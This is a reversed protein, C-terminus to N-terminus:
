IENNAQWEEYRRGDPMIAQELSKASRLQELTVKAGDLAVGELNALDLKAGKLDVNSLDSWRLDADSLDADSLNADELNAGKITAGILIASALYAGNLNTAILAAGSLNAHGLDSKSLDAAELDVGQISGDTLWGYARLEKAAKTAFANNKSGMERILQQLLNKEARKESLHDLILVTIAISALESSVNAYYDQILDDVSLKIGYQYVYGLVFVLFSLVLLFMGALRKLNHGRWSKQRSFTAIRNRNHGHFYPQMGTKAFSLWKAIM